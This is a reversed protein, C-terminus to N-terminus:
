QERKCSYGSANMNQEIYDMNQGYRYEPNNAGVEIFVSDLREFDLNSLDYKQIEELFGSKNSCKVYFGDLNEAERELLKCSADIQNLEEEDATPDGKTTITFETRELKNDTFHFVLNYNKDITKTNTQLSCKMSGTTIKVITQTKGRNQFEDVYDKIQPLYMVFLILGVLFVILLFTKFKGPPKYEVDVKKLNEVPNERPMPNAGNPNSNQNVIGVSDRPTINNVASVNSSSIISPSSNNNPQTTSVISPGTSVASVSTSNSSPMVVTPTIGPENKVEVPELIPVNSEMSSSRVDKVPNVSFEGTSPTVTNNQLSEVSSQANLTDTNSSSVSTFNEPQFIVPNNNQVSSSTGSFEKSQDQNM